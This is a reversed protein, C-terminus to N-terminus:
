QVYKTFGEKTVELDYTGVQLDPFAYAGDAASTVTRAAGTAIETLKVTAGVVAAGSSDQILGRIQSTSITQARLVAASLILCLGLFVKSGM